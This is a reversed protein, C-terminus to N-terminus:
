AGRKERKTVGIIFLWIGAVVMGWGAFVTLCVPPEDWTISDALAWGLFFYFGSLLILGTALIVTEGRRMSPKRKRLDSRALLGGAVATSFGALTLVIYFSYGEPENHRYYSDTSLVVILSFFGFTLGVVM